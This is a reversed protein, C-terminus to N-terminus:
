KKLAENVAKQVEEYNYGAETLKKKREEGNGYKGKIVNNVVTKTVKKYKTQQSEGADVVTFDYQTLNYQTVIKYCNEVYKSATAYGDAKIKELYDKSSTANKLNAYRSTSIFDFYGVVGDLMSGYCRFGDKITTITGTKYEEKTTMTVVLGKWSSGAKLGFYNHFKSSLKSNGYASEIIAQAIIASPFNYGRNKATAVIIPAIENIFSQTTM